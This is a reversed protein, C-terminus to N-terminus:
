ITFFLFARFRRVFPWPQTAMPVSRCRQRVTWVRQILLQRASGCGAVFLAKGATWWAWSFLYHAVQANKL